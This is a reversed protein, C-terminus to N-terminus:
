CQVYYTANVEQGCLVVPFGKATKQRTWAPQGPVLEARAAMGFPAANTFIFPAPSSNLSGTNM